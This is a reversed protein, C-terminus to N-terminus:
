RTLDPVVLDVLTNEAPKIESWNEIPCELVSLTAPVYSSRLTERKKSNDESALINSLQHIGPNHAILFLTEEDHCDQIATV